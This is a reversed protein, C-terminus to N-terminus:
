SYDELDVKHINKNVIKLQKKANTKRTLEKAKIQMTNEWYDQAHEMDQKFGMIESIPTWLESWKVIKRNIVLRM